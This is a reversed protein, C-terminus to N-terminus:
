CAPSAPLNGLISQTAPPLQRPQRRCLTVQQVTTRSHPLPQKRADQSRRCCQRAASPTSGGHVWTQCRLCARNHGTQRMQRLCSGASRCDAFSCLNQTSELHAGASPACCGIADAGSASPKVHAAQLHVTPLQCVAVPCCSQPAPQLLHQLPPSVTGCPCSLAANPLAPGGAANSM